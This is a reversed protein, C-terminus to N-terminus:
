VWAETIEQAPWLSIIEPGDKRIVIEEELRCGFRQDQRKDGGRGVWTEAAVVMNEQLTIPHKLALDRKIRPDEHISMGIGHVVFVEQAEWENKIGISEATPLLKGIKDTTVGAKLLPIVKYLMDRTDYYCEKQEQTPKGCCFTRYYCTHYGMFTVAACDIFILEGPRVQRDSFSLMNPNTNPGSQITFDVPADDGNRLTAALGVALLDCERVGPRIAARMEEFAAEATAAAMKLCEIEDETKILRAALMLNHGDVAEIGADKFWQKMDLSVVPMDIALPEKEVGYEALTKKIEDIFEGTGLGYAYPWEFPIAGKVRGEMWPMMEERIRRTRSGVTYLIPGSTRPFLVYIDSFNIRIWNPTYAGTLYRTNPPSFCLMAGVGQKKMEKRVKEVLDKRMRDVDIRKQWDCQMRGYTM